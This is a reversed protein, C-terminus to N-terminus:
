KVNKCQIYYTAYVRWYYNQTTGTALKFIGYKLGYHPTAPDDTTLWLKWKPTYATTTVTEYNSSLVAPVFFRKHIRSGHTMKCNQYEYLENMNAPTGSDTYDLVTRIDPQPTNTSIPNADSGDWSPVFMISVGLIRYQDFLATFEGSNPLDSLKFTYAGFVDTLNSAQLTGVQFRRKFYHTSLAASMRLRPRRSLTMRMRKRSRGRVTGRRKRKGLIGM